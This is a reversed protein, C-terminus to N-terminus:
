ENDDEKYREIYKEEFEKLNNRYGIYKDRYYGYLDSNDVIDDISIKGNLIRKGSLFEEQSLKSDYFLEKLIDLYPTPINFRENKTILEAYISLFKQLYDSSLIITELLLDKESYTNIDLDADYYENENDSIETVNKLNESENLLDTNDCCETFENDDVSLMQNVANEIFANLSLGQKEAESKWEDKTGKKVSVSIRDYAKANYKNKAKTSSKGM